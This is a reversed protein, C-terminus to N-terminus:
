RMKINLAAAVGGLRPPSYGCRCVKLARWRTMDNGIRLELPENLDLKISLQAQSPPAISPKQNDQREGRRMTWYHNWDFLPKLIPSLMRVIPKEVIPNWDLVVHTGDGEPQLIWRSSDTEFDGTAKFEILSPKERRITEIEFRLKYPLWGRAVAKIRNDSLQTTSLYV